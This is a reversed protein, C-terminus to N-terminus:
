LPRLELEGTVPKAHSELWARFEEVHRPHVKGTAHMISDPVDAYIRSDEVAGGPYEDFMGILHGFEHARVTTYVGELGEWWEHSYWWQPWEPNPDGGVYKRLKYGEPHNKGRHLRVPEGHGPAFECVINIPFMCCGSSWSGCGCDDGRKCDKRHLKYKNWIGEIQRKWSRKKSKTLVAGNTPIFHLKKTVTFKGSKVEMEFHVNWRARSRPDFEYVPKEAEIVPQGDPHEAQVWVWATQERVVPEMKDGPVKVELANSSKQVGNWSSQRAELKVERSWPGRVVLWKHSASNGNVEVGEMGRLPKKEPQRSIAVTVFQGNFNQTEVKLEVEDGCCAETKSWALKTVKLEEPDQGPMCMAPAQVEGAPPTNTPSGGNALMIDTLRFVNQGEVKVDFSYMKPYAKGKIKNSVVGMASGAEDGTSMKFNSSKLMIPNGDVKVTASGDATDSSQAV